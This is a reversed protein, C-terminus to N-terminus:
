GPARLLPKRLISFRALQVTFFLLVFRYAPNRWVELIRAGLGTAKAPQEDGHRSEPTGAAGGPSQSPQEPPQAGSVDDEDGM